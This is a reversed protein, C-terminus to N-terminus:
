HVLNLSIVKKEESGDSILEVAFRGSKVDFKLVKCKSGNLQPTSVLGDIIAICGAAYPYGNVLPINGVSQDCLSQLHNILFKEVQKFAIDGKELFASTKKSIFYGDGSVIIFGSCGLQGFNPMDNRTPIWGNIVSTFKFMQGFSEAVHKEDVCICLFDVFNGLGGSAWLEM